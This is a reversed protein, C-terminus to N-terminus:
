SLQQREADVSSLCQGSSYADINGARKQELLRELESESLSLLPTQEQVADRPYPLVGALRMCLDDEEEGRSSTRRHQPVGSNSEVGGNQQAYYEAVSWAHM